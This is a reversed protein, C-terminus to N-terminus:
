AADREGGDDVDNPVTLRRKGVSRAFDVIRMVNPDDAFSTAVREVREAMTGGSYFLERYAARLAHIQPRTFGRRKMGIINLGGLGPRGEIMAGFPIIDSRVGCMGGIICQEGIRSFQHAASLGGMFVNDGVTVHGGLTVNNAFIVKNGVSCDHAIHVGVMFFGDDGVRTEMHGGATGTNMTVHERITCREGIVLRSPEGKYGLSQPPTGLSAFPYVVTGGGITTHGEVVVHSILRVGAGLSVFEGVTCFPGIEADDAIRAGDAIVATPHIRPM